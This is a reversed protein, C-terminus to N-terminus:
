RCADAAQEIASPSVDDTPAYRKTISDVFCDAQSASFGAKVAATHLQDRAAPTWRGSRDDPGSCIVLGPVAMGAVLMVVLVARVWTRHFFRPREDADGDGDFWFASQFAEFDDFVELDETSLPRDDAEAPGPAFGQELDYRRRSDASKLTNWAENLVKMEAEARERDVPPGGAFRDPHLQQARRVYARRVEDIGADVPVGLVDYYSGAGAM